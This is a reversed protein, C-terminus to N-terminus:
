KLYVLSQAEKLAKAAFALVAYIGVYEMTGQLDADYLANTAKSLFFPSTM